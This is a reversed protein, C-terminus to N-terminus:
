IEYSLDGDFTIKQQDYLLLRKNRPMRAKQLKGNQSYIGFLHQLEKQVRLGLHIPIAFPLQDDRIKKIIKKVKGM